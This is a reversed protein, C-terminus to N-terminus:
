SDTIVHPGKLKPELKCSKSPFRLMLSDRVDFTVPTALLHQKRIMEERLAKLRELVSAHITKFSHLQLKYYDEPNYLQSPPNCFCMM